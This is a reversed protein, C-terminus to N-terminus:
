AAREYVVAQEIELEVLGYDAAIEDVSEGADLTSAFQENLLRLECPPCRLAPNNHQILGGRIESHEM